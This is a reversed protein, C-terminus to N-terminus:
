EGWYSMDADADDEPTERYQGERATWEEFATEAAESAYDAVKCGDDFTEFGAKAIMRAKFRSVYEDKTM